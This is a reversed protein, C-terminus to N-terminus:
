MWGATARLASCCGSSARRSQAPSMMEPRLARTGPHLVVPVAPFRRHVERAYAYDDEDFVVIKLVMQTSAGAAEICAQLAAWDTQMQSSPAQAVAGLSRAQRVLTQSRLRTNGARFLFWGRQGCRAATELPQLAPNGGSLTVLIPHGGSLESVRQLIATANM